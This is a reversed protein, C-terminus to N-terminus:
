KKTEIHGEFSATSMDRMGEIESMGPEVPIPHAPTRTRAVAGRFPDPPAGGGRAGRGVKRREHMKGIAAGGIGTLFPATWPFAQSVFKWAASQQEEIEIVDDEVKGRIVRAADMEAALEPCIAMAESLAKRAEEAKARARARRTAAEDREAAMAMLPVLGILFLALFWNLASM